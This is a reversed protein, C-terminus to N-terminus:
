ISLAGTPAMKNVRVGREIHPNKTLEHMITQKFYKTHQKNKWMVDVNSKIKSKDDLFACIM